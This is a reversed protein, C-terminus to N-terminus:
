EKLYEKLVSPDFRAVIRKLEPEKLKQAAKRPSFWKRRRQHAEPWDDALSKVQVPYVMVVVPMPRPRMMKTYAYVGLCIDFARGKIGAEEWAETAAARAPTERPM